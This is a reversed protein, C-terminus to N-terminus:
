NKKKLTAKSSIEPIQKSLNSPLKQPKYLDVTSIRDKILKQEEISLNSFGDIEDVDQIINSLLRAKHFMKFACDLHFFALIYKDKFLVRKGIRLCGKIIRNKCHKCKSTGRISYDVSFKNKAEDNTEKKVCM